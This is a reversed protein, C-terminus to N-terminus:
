HGDIFMNREEKNQSELQVVDHVNRQHADRSTALDAIGQSDGAECYGM